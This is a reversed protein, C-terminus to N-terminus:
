KRLGKQCLLENRCFLLGDPQIQIKELPPKPFSFIAGEYTSTLAAHRVVPNINKNGAIEKDAPHSFFNTNFLKM